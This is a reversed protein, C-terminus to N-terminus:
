WRNKYAKAWTKWSALSKYKQKFM